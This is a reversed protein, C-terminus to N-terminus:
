IFSLFIPVGAISFSTVPCSGLDTIDLEPQKRVIWKLIIRWGEERNGVLQEGLYGNRHMIDVLVIGLINCKVSM